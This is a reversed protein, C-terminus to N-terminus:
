PSDKEIRLEVGASENEGFNNPPALKYFDEVKQPKSWKAYQGLDSYAMAVFLTIPNESGIKSVAM